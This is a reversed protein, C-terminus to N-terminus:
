RQTISSELGTRKKLPFSKGAGPMNVHFHVDNDPKPLPNGMAEWSAFSIFIAMFLLLKMAIDKRQLSISLSVNEYLKCSKHDKYSVYVTLNIQFNM